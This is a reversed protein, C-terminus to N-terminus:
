ARAARGRAAVVAGQGPVTHPANAGAASGAAGSDRRRRLRLLTWRSRPREPVAPVADGGDPGSARVTRRVLDTSQALAIPGLTNM